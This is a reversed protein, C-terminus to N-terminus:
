MAGELTPGLLSSPTPGVLRSLSLHQGGPDACMVADLGHLPVTSLKQLRSSLRTCVNPSEGSATSARAAPDTRPCASGAGCARLTSSRLRRPLGDRRPTDLRRLVTTAATAGHRPDPRWSACSM